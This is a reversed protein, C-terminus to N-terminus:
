LGLSKRWYILGVALANELWKRFSRDLEEASQLYTFQFVDQVLPELDTYQTVADEESTLAKRYAFASCTMVGRPERGLGHFSFIMNTQLKDTVIMLRVWSRYARLNAYYGLARATEIIQNYYYGSFQQDDHASGRVNIVLTPVLHGLALEIEDKVERLREQVTDFLRDANFEVQRTAQEDRSSREQTLREQIAQLATQFSLRETLVDESLSLSSVFSRRQSRAMLDVLPALDDADAAELAHLYSVRAQEIDGNRSIVLPFWGARILVLSALVRAVRGNGDQFPHIQTFRHHLWAAEVEPSVQRETHELHWAVLQDMQASVQEPPCYHHTQGDPRAPNNPLRKWDGRLLEARFRKGFQDVADISEQHRTLLQHLQKIYSVSLQRQSGVFDFVRELTDEHDRILTVVEEAPKDTTGHPILAEDIGQEILIQTIGRDITYMREIVGTEIAIKRRMKEMFQKYAASDASGLRQRQDQWVRALAKLDDHALHQWNDPLDSIPTWASM